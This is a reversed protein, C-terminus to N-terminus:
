LLARIPCPALCTTHLASASLVPHLVPLVCHLRLQMTSTSVAATNAEGTSQLGIVVCM